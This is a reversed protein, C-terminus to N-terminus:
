LGRNGLAPDRFGERTEADYEPYMKEANLLAADDTSSEPFEEINYSEALARWWETGYVGCDSYDFPTFGIGTAVSQDSFTFDRNKADTFMPNVYTGTNDRGDNNRFWQIGMYFDWYLNSYANFSNGNWYDCYFNGEDTIFINNYITVMTGQDNQGKSLLGIKNFGLINNRVINNYGYHFHICGDYFDHVLNNQVVVDNCNLDVYIGWAGYNHCGANHVYNNQIYVGSNANTVYICGIDDLLNFGIHHVHNKEIILSVDTKDNEWCNIGDWFMDSIENYRIKANTDQGFYIANEHHVFRGGHRIINNEVVSGGSSGYSIGDGGFDEILCQQIICNTCEYMSIARCFAHRFTCNIFQVNTSQYVDIMKMNLTADSPLGDERTVGTSPMNGGTHRFEINEVIVNNYQIYWIRKTHSAYAEINSLTEGELPYYYLTGDSSLFWEGPKTLAGKFNELYFYSKGAEIGQNNSGVSHATFTITNGNISTIYARTTSWYHFIVINVDKLEDSSLDRLFRMTEEPVEVTYTIFNGSGSTSVSKITPLTWSSPIRARRTGHGNVWLSEFRWSDVKNEGTDQVTTPVRTKFINPNQDDREWKTTNVMFGGDVIVKGEGKIKLTGQIDCVWSGINAWQSSKYIGEKVTILADGTTHISSLVSYLDKNTNMEVSVQPNFDSYSSFCFLPLLLM